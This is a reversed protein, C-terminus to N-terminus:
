DQEDKPPATLEPKTFGRTGDEIENIVPIVKGKDLMKKQQENLDRTSKLLGTEMSGVLKNFEKVSDNLKSGLNAAHEAIVRVANHLKVGLEVIEIIAEEQANQKWSYQITKLVSFFSVPSVLAVRQNFAYELLTPDHELTVSLLSESPMFMITFEPSSELGSFYEKASIDDIHKKVDKAHEKLLEKRRKEDTGDAIEPIEFARQFNNFPVKSDVAVFKAEPMNIIVDPKIAKGADNVTNFQEFFDTGPRLGSQELMRRLTLEGWKGRVQNNTLAGALAETNRTLKEQQQQSQTIQEKITNFQDIREREVDSVKEQVEKLKAALPRLEQLYVSEMQAVERERQEFAEIRKKADDLQNRIELNTANAAALQSSQDTSSASGSKKPMFYGIALGIVLALLAITIEM